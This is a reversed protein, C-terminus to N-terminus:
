SGHPKRKGFVTRITAVVLVTSLLAITGSVMPMRIARGLPLASLSLSYASGLVPWVAWHFDRRHFLGIIANLCVALIALITGFVPILFYRIEPGMEPATSPDSPDIAALSVTVDIAVIVAVGLYVGLVFLCYKMLTRLFPPLPVAMTTLPSPLRPNRLPPPSCGLTTNRCDPQASEQPDNSRSRPSVLTQKRGDRCGTNPRLKEKGLYCISLSKLKM